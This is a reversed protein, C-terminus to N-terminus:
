NNVMVYCRAKVKGDATRVTIIAEGIAKPTLNGNADVTVIDPRNSSWLLQKHNANTPNVTATLKATETMEFVLSVKSLTIKSVPIEKYRTKIEMSGSIAGGVGNDNVSFTIYEEGGDPFIDHHNISTSIGKTAFRDLPILTKNGYQDTTQIEFGRLDLPQNYYVLPNIPREMFIMSKVYPKNELTNKFNVSRYKRGNTLNQTTVDYLDEDYVTFKPDLSDGIERIHLHGTTNIFVKADGSRKAAVAIIGNDTNKVEVSVKSNGLFRVNDGSIGRTLWNDGEVVINVISDGEFRVDGNNARIGFAQTGPLNKKYEHKIEIEGGKIHVDNNGLIAIAQDSVDMELKGSGKIILADNRHQGGTKIPGKIKNVGKLDITIDRGKSIYIGDTTNDIYNNLYLTESFADYYANYEGVVDPSAQPKGGNVLYPTNWTLYNTGVKVPSTIGEDIAVGGITIYQTKSAGVDDTVTIYGVKAPTNKNARKGKIVGNEFYMNNTIFDWHDLKFYGISYKYPPTGGFVYETIDIPTIDSNALGAPINYSLHHIFTLATPNVTIPLQGTAGSAEHKFKVVTDTAKLESSNSPTVTIGNAEFQSFPVDINLNGGEEKELTVVLDRLDLKQGVFYVPKEPFTKVKIASVDEPNGNYICSLTGRSNWDGTITYDDNNRKINTAQVAKGQKSTDTEIVLKSKTTIELNSSAYIGYNSAAREVKIEVNARDKINVGSSSSRIGYNDTGTSGVNIKLKTNGGINVPGYGAKIGFNDTDFVELKIEGGNINVGGWRSHISGRRPTNYPEMELKGNGNINIDGRVQIAGWIYNTTGDNLIINLPGQEVILDASTELNNLTLTRTYVDYYAYYNNLETATASWGNYYPKEKDLTYTPSGSNHSVFKISGYYVAGVSIDTTATKGTENDTVKVTINTAAQGEAPRKGSIYVTAHESIKLWDPWYDEKSFSYNGSGGSVKGTLTINSIYTDVEGEPIDYSDLEFKLTDEFIPTLIPDGSEDFGDFKQYHQITSEPLAPTNAIANSISKYKAYETAYSGISMYKTGSAIGKINIKKGGSLYNYTPDGRGKGYAVSYLGVNVVVDDSGLEVVIADISGSGGDSAFAFSSVLTLLIFLSLFAFLINKKM